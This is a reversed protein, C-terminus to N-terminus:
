GITPSRPLGPNASAERVAERAVEAYPKIHAEVRDLAARIRPLAEISRMISDYEASDCAEASCIAYAVPYFERMVDAWVRTTADNGTALDHAATEIQSHLYGSECSGFERSM